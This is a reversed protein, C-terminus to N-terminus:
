QRKGETTTSEFSTPVSPHSRPAMGPSPKSSSDPPTQRIVDAQIQMATEFAALARVKAAASEATRGWKAHEEAQRQEVLGRTEFLHGRFYSTEPVWVLAASIRGLANEFRLLRSELDAIRAQTDAVVERAEAPAAGVRGPVPGEVVSVLPRIADATDTDEKLDALHHAARARSLFALLTPDIPSDGAEEDSCAQQTRSCAPVYSGTMTLFGVLFAFHGRSTM